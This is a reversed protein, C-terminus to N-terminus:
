RSTPNEVPPLDLKWASSHVVMFELSVFIKGLVISAFVYLVPSLLFPTMGLYCLIVSDKLGWVVRFTGFHFPLLGMMLLM